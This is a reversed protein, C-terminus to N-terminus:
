YLFCSKKVEQKKIFDTTQKKRPSSSSQSAQPPTPIRYPRSMDGSHDARSFTISSNISPDFQSNTATEAFAIRSSGRTKLLRQEISPEQLSSRELSVNAFRALLDDSNMYERSETVNAYERGYMSMQSNRSIRDVNSPARQDQLDRENNYMLNIDTGPEAGYPSTALGHSASRPSKSVPTRVRGNVSRPTTDDGGNFSRPSRSDDDGDSMYRPSLHQTDNTLRSSAQDADSNPYELAQPSTVSTARPNKLLEQIMNYSVLAGQSSETYAESELDQEDEEEGENVTSLSRNTTIGGSSRSSNIGAEKAEDLLRRLVDDPLKPVEVIATDSTETHSNRPSTSSRIYSSAESTARSSLDDCQRLIEALRKTQSAPSKIEQEVANQMRALEDEINLLREHQSRAQKTDQLVKEGLDFMAASMESFGNSVSEEIPTSCISMFDKSPMLAMLKADIDQLMKQENDDPLYGVGAALQLQNHPIDIAEEEEDHLMEVEQLLEELRKKEDDTMAIVNGADTALEINRRIFNDKNEDKGDQSRKGKAKKNKKSGRKGNGTPDNRGSRPVSRNTSEGDGTDRGTDNGDAGQSRGSNAAADTDLPQTAFVPSVSPLDDELDVGENHSTPPILALFKSTNDSVEKLEDRGEPKVGDLERQLQRHLELRQRKVEKERKVKKALIRDLQRMKRMAEEIKPDVSDTNLDDTEADNDVGGESTKDNNSIEDPDLSATEQGSEDNQLALVLQHHLDSDGNHIDALGEDDGSGSSFELVEIDHAEQSIDEPPLIELSSETNLNSRYSSSSRASNLSVRSGPRQRNNPNSPPRTIEDLGGRTIEM